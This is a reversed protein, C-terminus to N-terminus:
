GAHLRLNLKFKVFVKDVGKLRKSRKVFSSTRMYMVAYTVSHDHIYLAQYDEKTLEQFFSHYKTWFDQDDDAMFACSLSVEQVQFRVLGTDAEIGNEERWDNQYSTKRAPYTLFDERGSQIVLGFEDFLYRDNLKDKFRM